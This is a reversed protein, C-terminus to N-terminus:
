KVGTIVQTIEKGRARLVDRIAQKLMGTTASDFKTFDISVNDTELDIKLKQISEYSKEYIKEGEM